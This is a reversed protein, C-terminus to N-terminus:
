RRCALRLRRARRRATRRARIVILLNTGMSAFAEEVQAKAGEGIAVMAIVAGVGIIIGLTTLFSRMKNRLLARSARRAPDAAPEHADGGRREAPAARSRRGAARRSRGHRGEDVIVARPTARRHGARAHGARHHHGRAGLEQFLAMVEVSTRSDLNGTPEDALILQPSTSWRARSPWASSSAARSSTRTTTSGTASASASSRRARAGRAARQRPVGPTSCRCSSTRWRAPARWCTSARSSSASRATASRAGARRPRAALRRQGDLLYRGATPRDLCGLINM